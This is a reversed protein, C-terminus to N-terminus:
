AEPGMPGIEDHLIPREGPVPPVPPVPMMVDGREGPGMHSWGEADEPITIDFSLKKKMRLVNLKMKEGAQYSSLIQLAHSPSSPVRGDIDVIVDGEELKLRADSPARVVLLGKDSGFYQGLKPTLSVLQATGFVGDARMFAFNPFGMAPLAGMAPPVQFRFFRDKPEQAEVTASASKGDRQYKLTVKQGPDVDRMASLFQREAPDEPSGKLPKGNIQTIVDGSKLGAEAAGGGPSVSQIEVGDTRRSSNAGGIVMGLVARPPHMSHLRATRPLVDDSLSMSLDAVERAASDLRKQAAELKQQLEARSPEAKADKVQEAALAGTASLASCVLAALLASRSRSIM